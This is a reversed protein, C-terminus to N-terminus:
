FQQSPVKQNNKSLLFAETDIKELRSRHHKGFREELVRQWNLM